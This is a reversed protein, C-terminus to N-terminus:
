RDNNQEYEAQGGGRRPRRTGPLVAPRVPPGQVVALVATRRGQVGDGAVLHHREPDRLEDEVPQHPEVLLLLDDGLEGLAPVNRLVPAGVDEEQALVYGPLYPGAFRGFGERRVIHDEGVVDHHVRLGDGGQFDPVLEDLAHLLDVVVGDPESELPRNEVGQGLEGELDDRLVARGVRRKERPFVREHATGDPGPRILQLGDRSVALDRERRVVGVELATGVDVRDDGLGEGVLVDHRLREHEVGDVHDHEHVRPVQGLDLPVLAEDELRVVGQRVGEEPVVQAVRKEGVPTDPLREGVREVALLHEVGEEASLPRDDGTGERRPAPGVVEVHRGQGELGLRGGRKELLRAKREPRVPDQLLSPLLEGQRELDRDLLLALGDLADHEGEPVIELVHADVDLHLELLPLRPLPVDEELVIEVDDEGGPDEVIRRIDGGEEEGGLDAGPLVVEATIRVRFHVAEEHLALQGEVVFLAPREVPLKVRDEGLLVRVGEEPGQRVVRRVVLLDPVHRNLRVLEERVRVIPKNFRLPTLGTARTRARSIVTVASRRRPTLTTTKPMRYRDGPSGNLRRSSPCIDAPTGPCSTRSASPTGFAHYAWYRKHSAPISRPFKPAEMRVPRGTRSSIKRTPRLVSRRVSPEMATVSRTAMGMARYAATRPRFRTEKGSVIAAYTTDARGTKQSPYTTM